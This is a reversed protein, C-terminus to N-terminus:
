GEGVLRPLHLLSNPWIQPDRYFNVGILELRRGHIKLRETFDPWQRSQAPSWAVEALACLRPFVFYDVVATTPTTNTWMCAEIGLVHKAKDAPFETPIPEFSYAKTVSTRTYNYDLYCHSTPSIIVDHGEKVAAIGGEMGRWSQVIANPALGGELIEDWGILKRNKSQLFREIRKIFYSQLEEENQLGMTKIRRQCKPCDKWLDKPCEDGGIHIWTSPFLEMVESLVDQLFEFTKDNGACFVFKGHMRYPEPHAGGGIKVEFPGGTCSFEPYCALAAQSHGPMEIEPVIEVYRSQAFAVIQRIDEQSYFGGIKEGGKVKQWAGFETLRPYKKIEVRWGQEDTLHWHFRNMKHYALLEIFQKIYETSQFFRGSDLLAGRWGFRPWDEIDVCLITWAVGLVKSKSEIYSPLLQRLTQCAYFVGAPMQANILVRDKLVKLEYGEPGLHEKGSNSRLVISNPMEKSQPYQRIDLNFGTAPAVLQALYQGVSRTDETVVIVTGPTITFVGEQVKMKVPRPIVSYATPEEATIQTSTIFVFGLLIM